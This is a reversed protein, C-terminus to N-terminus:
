WRSSRCSRSATRCTRRSALASRVMAVIERCAFPKPLCDFARLWRVLRAAAEDLSGSPIIVPVPAHSQQFVKLFDLGNMGPWRNIDSLVVDFKRRQVLRLAEESTAAGVTRIGAMERLVIKIVTRISACDDVVLVLPRPRSSMPRRRSRCRTHFFGPRRYETANM